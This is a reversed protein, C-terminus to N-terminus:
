ASKFPRLLEDSFHCHYRIQSNTFIEKIILLNACTSLGPRRLNKAEDQHFAVWQRITKDDMSTYEPRERVARQALKDFEDLYARATRRDNLMLRAYAAKVLPRVLFLPANTERAEELYQSTLADYDDWQKEDALSSLHSNYVVLTKAELAAQILAPSKLARAINRLLNLYITYVMAKDEMLRRDSESWRNPLVLCDLQDKSAKGLIDLQNWQGELERKLLDVPSDLDKEVYEDAVSLLIRRLSATSDSSEPQSLLPRPQGCQFCFRYDDPNQTGCATCYM